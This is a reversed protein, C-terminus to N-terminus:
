LGPWKPPDVLDDSDKDWLDGIFFHDPWGNAYFDYMKRVKCDLRCVFVDESSDIDDLAKVSSGHTSTLIARTFSHDDLLEIERELEKTSFMSADIILCDGFTSKLAYRLKGGFRVSGQHFVLRM